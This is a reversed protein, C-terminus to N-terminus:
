PQLNDRGLPTAKLSKHPTTSSAGWHRNSRESNSAACSTSPTVCPTLRQSLQKDNNTDSLFIFVACGHRNRTPRLAFRGRQHRGPRRGTVRAAKVRPVDQGRWETSKRRKGRGKERKGRGEGSEVRYKKEERRFFSEM